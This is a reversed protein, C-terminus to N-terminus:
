RRSTAPPLLALAPAYGQRPAASPYGERLFARVKAFVATPRVTAGEMTQITTRRLVRM